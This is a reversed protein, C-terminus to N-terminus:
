HLCCGQIQADPCGSSKLLAATLHKKDYNFISLSLSESSSMFQISQGDFNIQVEQFESVPLAYFCAWTAPLIRHWSLLVSFSLYYSCFAPQSDPERCNVVALWYLGKVAVQELFDKM